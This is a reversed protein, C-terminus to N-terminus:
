GYGICHGVPELCRNGGALSRTQNRAEKFVLQGLTVVRQRGGAAGRITILRQHGLRVLPLRKIVPNLIAIRGALGTGSSVRM